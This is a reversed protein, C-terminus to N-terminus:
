FLRKIIEVVLPVLIGSVLIGFVVFKFLNLGRRARRDSLGIAISSNPTLRPLLSLGCVFVVAFSIAGVGMVVIPEWWPSKAPTLIEKAYLDFKNIMDSEALINALVDTRNLRAGKKFVDIAFRVGIFFGIWSVVHSLVQIFWKNRFLWLPRYLGALKSADVFPGLNAFAKAVWDPDSGAVTLRAFAHHFEGPAVDQTKLRKETVFQIAVEGAIPEGSGGVAFRSWSIQTSEPDQKNGAREMFEQFSTLRLSSLDQFRTESKFEVAESVPVEDLDRLVQKELSELLDNDVYFPFPYLQSQEYKEIEDAAIRHLLKVIKTVNAATAVEQAGTAQTAPVDSEM